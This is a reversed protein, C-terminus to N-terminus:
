FKEYNKMFILIINIINNSKLSSGLLNAKICDNQLVGSRIYFM